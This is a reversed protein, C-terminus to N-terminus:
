PADEDKPTALSHSRVFFFNGAVAVSPQGHIAAKARVTFISGIQGDAVKDAAALFMRSRSM